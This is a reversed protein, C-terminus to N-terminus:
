RTSDREAKLTVSIRQNDVVHVRGGYDKALNQATHCTESLGSSM